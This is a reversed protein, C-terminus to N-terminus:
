NMLSFPLIQKSFCLLLRRADISFSPHSLKLINNLLVPNFVYLDKNGLNVLYTSLHAESFLYLRNSPVVDSSPVCNSLSLSILTSSSSVATLTVLLSKPVWPSNVKLIKNSLLLADASITPSKPLSLM